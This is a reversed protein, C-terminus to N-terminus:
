KICMGGYDKFINAVPPNYTFVAFCIIFFILIAISLIKSLTTSEDKRIMIKYSVWEGLIISVIFIIINIVAFDTGVIGTYTYFTMIIFSMACFIGITKAELYNNSINQLYFYELIAMLIMPYFVLKLHEWVSENVASFIGVFSSEGSWEYTFHLLTGLFLCIIMVAIEVKLVKSTKIKEIFKSIITDM